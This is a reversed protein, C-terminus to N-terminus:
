LTLITRLYRYDIDSEHEVGTCTQFWEKAL